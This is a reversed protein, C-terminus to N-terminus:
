PEHIGKSREKLPGGRRGYRAAVIEALISLAVEEASRGGLDLGVPAWIRDIQQDTFGEERLRKARKAHTVRSGIAGIYRVKSRLAHILTPIDFKPDHTLTVVYSREDLVVDRLAEQPWALVLDDAEPFRERTAFTQRPDIVTVHFGLGKAARCLWVASQTAGVIFLQLPPSLAEIFFSATKGLRQLKVIQTGGTQLLQRAAELVASDLHVDVSGVSSGNELMVLKRGLLAGPTVVVAVAVPRRAELEEALVDWEASRSFPEILVDIEGGCTLGVRLGMEDAIGYSAVAPRGDDLVTMAREIVDREVCGGSVSGIIKGSRTVGMRAGPLRPSSGRVGVLTALAAEENQQQWLWLQAITENM